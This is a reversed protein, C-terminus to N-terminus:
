EWLKGAPLPVQFGQSFLLFFGASVGLICLAFGGARPPTWKEFNATLVLALMMALASLYFGVFPMLASAALM